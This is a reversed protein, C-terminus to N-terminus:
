RELCQFLCIGTLGSFSRYETKQRTPAPLENWFHNAAFGLGILLALGALGIGVRTAGRRWRWRDKTFAYLLVFGIVLSSLFLGAGVSM